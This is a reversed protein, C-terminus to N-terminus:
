KEDIRTQLALLRSQEDIGSKKLQHKQVVIDENVELASAHPSYVMPRKKTQATTVKTQTLDTIPTHM